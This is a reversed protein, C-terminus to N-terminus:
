SQGWPDYSDTHQEPRGVTVPEATAKRAERENEEKRWDRFEDGDSEWPDGTPAVFVPDLPGYPRQRIDMHSPESCLYKYNGKGAVRQALSPNVMVCLLTSGKDGVPAIRGMEALTKMGRRVAQVNSRNVTGCCLRVLEDTHFPAHGYNNMKALALEWMRWPVSMRKREQEALLTEDNVAVWSGFTIKPKM